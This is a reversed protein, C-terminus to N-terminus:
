VPQDREAADLDPAWAVGNIHSGGDVFLTNGTLYRSGDSALFVVVPAIDDYPDGIRGMPNAADAMAEMEPHEGLVRQFSRSKAAPCVANVTVGTPAWERAATRTLARLAEKAANYELSGMHANVGNLSCMNVVRGWGRSQMYPFAARMAWFPGYYGLAIGHALQEDSKNEVRGITGGGWANNVLIDISGYDSIAAGVANEVDARDRIDAAVFRGGIEDAVARGSIEDLDTIVVRAGEDAFRRAIGAGIGAAAGTVLAVKGALQGSM